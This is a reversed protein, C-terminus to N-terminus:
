KKGEQITKQLLTKLETRQSGGVMSKLRDHLTSDNILGGLTGSGNDIKEVVSALHKSIKKLNKGDEGRLDQLALNLQDMAKQFDASGKTMNVMLKDSRGDQNLSKTLTHLENLIDFVKTLEGGRQTLTSFIDDSPESAIFDGNKLPVGPEKGTGPDIYIYKDGLAGQTRLGAMSNTTIKNQFKTLIKLYVVLKNDENSFEIGSVNGVQFGSLRVISGDALGEVKDLSARLTYTNSFLSKNGGLMVVTVVLLLVCLGVAIGVKLETLGKKM